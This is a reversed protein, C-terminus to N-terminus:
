MKEEEKGIEKQVIRIGSVVTKDVITTPTNIEHM